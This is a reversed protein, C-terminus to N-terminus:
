FQISPDVDTKIYIRDKTLDIELILLRYFCICVKGPNTWIKSRVSPDIGHVRVANSGTSFYISSSCNLLFMRVLLILCM